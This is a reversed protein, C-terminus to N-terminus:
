GYADEVVAGFRVDLHRGAHLIALRRRENDDALIALALHDVVAHLILQVNHVPQEIVHLENEAGSLLGLFHLDSTLPFLLAAGISDGAPRSRCGFGGFGIRTLLRAPASTNMM